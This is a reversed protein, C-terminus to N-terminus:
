VFIVEHVDSIIVGHPVVSLKNKIKTQKGNALHHTLGIEQIALVGEIGQLCHYVDYDYLDRGFEWGQGSNGGVIPNLYTYLKQLIADYVEKKTFGAAIRCTVQASVRHLEPPLIQLRTTLLRHKDLHAKIIQQAHENLLLKHPQIRRHPNEITPLPVVFVTGPSVSDAWGPQPQLCKVRALSVATKFALYEFDEATVARQQARLARPAALIAAELQEQDQGGQAAHRNYVVNVSPVATKLTNLKFKPINGATGGGHRYRNFWISAGRPPIKGYLNVQGDTKMIAPPFRVEGTATDLVYCAQKVASAEFNEQRTWPEEITKWGQETDKTIEVCITEGRTPDPKLMPTQQVFFTQGPSGDSTGLFEREVIIANTAQVTGGWSSVTLQRITPTQKYPRVHDSGVLTYEDRTLVRLRVWFRKSEKNHKVAEFMPLHIMIRGPVNLGRTSDQAVDCQHWELQGNKEKDTAVEWILPVATEDIGVGAGEVCDLDFALLHHSLDIEEAFGFYCADNPRPIQSFLNLTAGGNQLYPVNQHEFPQERSQRYTHIAELQPPHITLAKDTMFIISPEYETQTSAVETDAPIVFDNRPPEALQFTVPVTAARPEELTIGLLQMMKIYFRRPMQNQRFLIMETMWAFLEILTVGPDSVNHDTWGDIYAPIRKKAEDVIDQFTRDDLQPPLLAM